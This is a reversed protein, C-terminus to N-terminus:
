NNEHDGIAVLEIFVSNSFVHHKATNMKLLKRNLYKYNMEM